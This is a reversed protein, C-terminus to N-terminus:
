NKLDKLKDKMKDSLLEAFTPNFPKEQEMYKKVDLREQEKLYDKISFVLERNKIDIKVLKATVDDGIKFKSQLDINTEAAFKRPITGILNDVLKVIIKDKEVLEIKADYNKKLKYKLFPDVNKQKLGLSLKRDKLNVAIIVAEIEEGKKFMDPTIKETKDWSIDNIHLLGNIGKEIEVFVGFDLISTVKGFVRDGKKHVSVFKEWPSEEIQKLGLSIRRATKDINLIKVKVIDNEKLVDNVKHIKDIWSLDSIHLFGEINNGIDIFAGIKIIKLVKGEVIDGIKFKINSWPDKQLNKLSLSIKEKNEDMDTIIVEVEDYLSLIDKPNRVKIWSMDSIHLFGDLGGLDVFVGYDKINKVKGKIKQGIELKKKLEVAKKEKIKNEYEKASVIINNDRIDLILVDFNKNKLDEKKIGFPIQSIPMFGEIGSISVVFGGKNESVVKCNVPLKYEFRTKLDEFTKMLKLKKYSVKSIGISSRHEVFVEVEDGVRINLDNNEDLFETIDIYLESKSGIDITVDDHGVEVIIAKVIDKGTDSFFKNENKKLLEEMSIEEDDSKFNKYDDM